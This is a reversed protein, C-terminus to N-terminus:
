AGREVYVQGDDSALPRTAHFVDRALRRAGHADVRFLSASFDPDVPGDEDAVVVAAREAGLVDGRVVAGPAHPVEALAQERLGAPGVTVFRVWSARAQADHPTAVIAIEAAPASDPLGGSARAVGGGPETRVFQM